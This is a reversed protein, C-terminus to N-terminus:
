FQNCQKPLTLLVNNINKELREKYRYMIRDVQTHNNLYIESKPDIGSMWEIGNRLVVCKARYHHMFGVSPPVNLENGQQPHNMM